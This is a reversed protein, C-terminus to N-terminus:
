IKRVIDLYEEADVPIVSMELLRFNESIKIECDDAMKDKGYKGYERLFKKLEEIERRGFLLVLESNPPREYAAKHKESLKNNIKELLNM